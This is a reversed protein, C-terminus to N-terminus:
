EAFLAKLDVKRPGSQTATRLAEDYIYGTRDSIRAYSALAPKGDLEVILPKEPSEKSLNLTAEVGTSLILKAVKNGSTNVLQQGASDKTEWALVFVPTNDSSLAQRFSAFSPVEM